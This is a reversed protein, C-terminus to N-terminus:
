RKAQQVSQAWALNNKALQMGPDFEIAKNFWAAAEDPHKKMMYATGINNAAIASKPELKLMERWAVIAQDYDGAHLDNLGEALYFAGDHAPTAQEAVTNSGLAKAKEDSAWKLNNRALQFDPSLTLAHNCEDIATAYDKQLTHAVCLDNWAVANTKDEAVVANLVPIAQGPQGGNIYALSLKIRNSSTPSEQALSQLSALDTQAAEVNTAASSGGSQSSFTRIGLYVLPVAVLLAAVGLRVGRSTGEPTATTESSTSAALEADNDAPVKDFTM